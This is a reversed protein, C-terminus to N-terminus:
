KIEKGTRIYHGEQVAASTATVCTVIVLILVPTLQLREIFLVTIFILVGCLKNLVTHETVFHGTIIIGCIINICKIIAICGTWIILWLPVSVTCLVKVLVVIVFVADAVTDLRAGFESEIKLRRAVFGDLMDSLGGVIYLCYFICSFPACFVLVIGCIIRICTIINAMKTAVEVCRFRRIYIIYFKLM